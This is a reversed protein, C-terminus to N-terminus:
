ESKWPQKLKAAKRVLEVFEKRHESEKGKLETHKAATAAIPEFAAVGKHSSERMLMGFGAVSAAFQFEGSAKGFAKPENKVPVEILKSASGDPDKYRLKVTLAEGNKVGETKADATKQDAKQYKLADVSGPPTKGAPVVEYFATVTHGSGIEGADKTDDNFDEKNLLRKEYGVLRYASVYAPNFEVQIKVDKAITILTGAMQEVLAKKAEALTDIYAYNGNGKDSLKMMNSDKYNGMGFGLVSLFSGGKAKEEILKVLDSENTIGVNFDGDSALVVRNVGGKIFSTRLTDYALQIGAGGNTSGGAKLNDIADKIKRRSDGSTPPLVLGSAGAYVVLSIRDQDQMQDVLLKLSEQVLPLKNPEDMSGSVDILFCLNLKPREKPAIDKGRLAIRVLQNGETWPTEAMEVHVAFPKGDTPPAYNYPFYNVLEEIRVADKPPLQGANLMRRVNAYSATDVDISFTSLPEATPKIWPNEIIQSYSEGSSGEVPPIYPEPLPSPPMCGFGGGPPCVAVKGTPMPMQVRERAMLSAAGGAGAAGIGGKTGFTQMQDSSVNMAKKAKFESPAMAAREAFASGSSTDEVSLSDEEAQFAQNLSAGGSASAAPRNTIQAEQKPSVRSEKLTASEQKEAFAPQKRAPEEFERVMQQTDPSSRRQELVRPAVLVAVIGAATLGVASIGLGSYTWRTLAFWSKKEAPIIQEREAPSLRPQAELELEGSLFAATEKTEEVFALLEPDNGIADKVAKAEPGSLEGLAYATLRPDNIQIKDNTM